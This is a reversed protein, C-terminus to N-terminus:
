LVRRAVVSRHISLSSADLLAQPVVLHGPIVQADEVLAAHAGQLDGLIPRPDNIALLDDSRAQLQKCTEPHARARWQHLPHTATDTALALRLQIAPGATEDCRDTGKFAAKLGGLQGAVLGEVRARPRTYLTVATGIAVSVALGYLARQFSYAKLPDPDMAVGMAFPRIFEPWPFSLLVAILGGLMAAFAAAPSFRPWLLGMLVTAALPPGIAATFAGHAQYLTGIQMYVPVLLLGIAAVLISAIRAVRLYHRDDADPRVYLRWVDNVWVSATANILTDATSMLAASLAALVFGFVGPSTLLHAVVIFVEDPKTDPSLVGSPVLARGIWGAGAVAVVALVQLGLLVAVAAKRGTDASRGALFRLMMGQNLIFIFVGNTVGDQWFIGIFNFSPPDNLPALPLRQLPTFSDWLVDFGGVYAVGVAFLGLGAVLLLIGQVVDTVIVAAQGGSTVYAGCVVAVIAASALVPGLSQEYGLLQAAVKGMTLLNIGIYGVMYILLLVTAMLRARRDFRREFYEPVTRIRGYYVIPLWVFMFLPMWFWDNVYTMTAALGHEFAAASYKVFSYSGVTTAMLSMAIAPWGFRQGGTFFDSTTRNYRALAAGLGFIFIM